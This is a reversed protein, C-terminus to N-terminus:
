VVSGFIQFVEYFVAGLFLAIIMAVSTVFPWRKRLRNKSLHEGTTLAMMRYLTEMFILLIVEFPIAQQHRIIGTMLLVVAFFGTLISAPILIRFYGLIFYAVTSVLNAILITSLVRGFVMGEQYESIGFFGQLFKFREILTVSLDKFSFFFLLGVAVGLALWGLCKGFIVWYARNRSELYVSERM